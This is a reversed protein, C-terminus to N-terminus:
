TFYVIKVASFVLISIILILVINAILLYNFFMSEKKEAEFVDAKYECNKGCRGYSEYRTSPFLTHVRTTIIREYAEHMRKEIHKESIERILYVTDYLDKIGGITEIIRLVVSFILVISGDYIGQVAVTEIPFPVYKELVNKLEQHIVNEATQCVENYSIEKYNNGSGHKRNPYLGMFNNSDSEDLDIHCQYVMKYESHIYTSKKM